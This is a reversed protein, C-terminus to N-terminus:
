SQQVDMPDELDGTIQEFADTATVLGLVRDDGDADTPETVFALEQNERQFQDILAAVTAEPSVTMPPTALEELDLTGEQLEELHRLVLPTYLVGRFDDLSEGVVPFRVHPSEAIRELNTELPDATSVALIESEDIMIDEVEITGIDLAGLVEERREPPLDEVQSLADGMRRRLEGRTMAGEEGEELEEETWSRGIEVGFLGLLGKAVRDSLLIVPSMVKTWAFLVPAGYQAVFKTREIGLYTPAQEGVIVHLLNIIALSTGVALASHGAGSPSTLGIEHLVPDLVAAVAPEAVFGLGVSCITIGVQCGSLYIELKETMEWALELGRGEFESEDFQRVRTLAFETTVFFGNGLLLGVGAVLRIATALDVM